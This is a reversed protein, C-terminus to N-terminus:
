HGGCGAILNKNLIFFGLLSLIVLIIKRITNISKYSDKGLFDAIVVATSEVGTGYYINHPAKEKTIHVEINKYTTDTGFSKFFAVSSKGGEIRFIADTDMGIETSWKMLFFSIIIFTYIYVLKWKDKGMLTEYFTM